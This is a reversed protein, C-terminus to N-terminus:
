LECMERMVHAQRKRDPFRKREECVAVRKYEGVRLFAEAPSPHAARAKGPKAVLQCIM